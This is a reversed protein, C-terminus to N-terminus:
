ERRNSKIRNSELQTTKEEKKEEKRKEVAARNRKKQPVFRLFFWVGFSRVFSRFPLSRFLFLCVVVVCVSQASHSPSPPHLFTSMPTNKNYKKIMKTPKKKTSSGRRNLTRHSTEREVMNRSAHNLLHEVNDHMFPHNPPNSAIRNSEHQDASRGDWGPRGNHWEISFISSFIYTQAQRMCSLCSPTAMPSEYPARRRTRAAGTLAFFYSIVGRGQVVLVVFFFLRDSDALRFCFADCRTADCTARETVYWKNEAIVAAEEEPTFDNM